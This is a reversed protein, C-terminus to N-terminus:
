ESESESESESLYERRIKKPIQPRIHINVINYKILKKSVLNIWGDATTPTPIPESIIGWEHNTLTIPISENGIEFMKTKPETSM